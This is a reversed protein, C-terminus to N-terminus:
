ASIEPPKLNDKSESTSVPNGPHPTSMAAAHYTRWAGHRRGVDARGERLSPRWTVAGTCDHRYGCSARAGTQLHSGGGMGEKGGKGAGESCMSLNKQVRSHTQTRSLYSVEKRREDAKRSFLYM